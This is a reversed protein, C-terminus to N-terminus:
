WLDKATLEQGARLTIAAVPIEAEGKTPVVGYAVALDVAPIDYLADRIPGRFAPGDDTRVVDALGDVRWYDGDADRRFLDPTALWADERAFVGRLPTVS